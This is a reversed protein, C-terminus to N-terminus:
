MRTVLSEEEQAIGRASSPTPDLNHTDDTAYTTTNDVFSDGPRTDTTKGDVSVPSICDFEEGLTM